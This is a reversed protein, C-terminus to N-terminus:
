SSGTDGIGEVIAADTRVQKRNDFETELYKIIQNYNGQYTYFNEYVGKLKNQKDIIEDQPIHTLIDDICDALDADILVGYESFNCWKPLVYEDSIYVPISGYQISESIRFSNFGYGRYCLTFVSEHMARCYSMIDQREFSIYYGNKDQLRKASDRIPHTPSGVFNCFYKKPSTFSYPHPMCLLPIPVGKNKSMNFQLVDLDKFDVLCGDDYQCIIFYKKSRDLSDIFEQAAHFAERDQAYNNNVWYSTPFFPLLERDTNCGQYNEAFWEEFIKFNNPPYIPQIHPCFKNM